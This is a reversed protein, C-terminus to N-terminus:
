GVQFNMTWDNDDGGLLDGIIEGLGNCNEATLADSDVFFGSQTVELAGTDSDISGALNLEMSLACNELDGLLDINTVTMDLGTSFGGEGTVPDFAGVAVSTSAASYSVTVTTGLADIQFSGDDYDINAYFSGNGGTWWSGAASGTVHPIVDIGPTEEDGPIFIRLDSTM